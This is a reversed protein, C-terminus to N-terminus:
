LVWCDAQGKPWHEGTLVEFGMWDAKAVFEAWAAVLEVWGV